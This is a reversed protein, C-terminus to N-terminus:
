STRVLAAMSIVLLLLAIFSLATLRETTSWRKWDAALDKALPSTHSVAPRCPHFEWLLWNRLSIVSWGTM